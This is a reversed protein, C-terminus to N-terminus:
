ARKTFVFYRSLFSFRKIDDSMRLMEAAFAADRPKATDKSLAAWNADEFVTSFLASAFPVGMAHAEDKSILHVGRTALKAVLVDFDALYEINVKNITEVYVAIARGYPSRDPARDDYRKEIRWVINGDPTTAELANDGADLLANEAAKGDTCTGIFLGGARLNDAVNAVFGDLKEESEFMYHAAFQCSVVDFPQLALGEYASLNSDAPRHSKWLAQAIRKLSPNSVADAAERGIKRSADMPVFAYRLNANVKTSRLKALRAYAGASSKGVLNDEFIDVGVVVTYGNRIWSNMDAGRGCAVDLLRLPKPGLFRAARAYLMKDIIWVRHFRRMAETAAGTGATVEDFYVDDKAGAGSDSVRRPDAVDLVDIPFCISRWVSVATDYSNPFTKDHRVRLPTWGSSPDWSFEVISEDIVPEHPPARCAPVDRGPFVVAGIHMGQKINGYGPADFQQLLTKKDIAAGTLVAYPDAGAGTDRAGVMLVARTGAASVAVDGFSTKEYQVKFDVSNDKPPKWKFVRGWTSSRPAPPQGPRDQFVALREPTLVLGDVDYEALSSYESYVRAAAALPAFTKARVAPSRTDGLADALGGGARMQGIRTNAGGDGGLDALWLGRVDEGRNWYVDFVLYLNIPTGIKSMTVHEGDLLTNAARPSRIGTRSVADRDDILYGDGKSDVFLLSRRGDAKETVTYRLEGDGSVSFTDATEPQLNARELTVPRPMLRRHHGSLGTLSGLEAMVRASASATLLEGGGLQNRLVLLLEGVCSLMGTALGSARQRAGEPRDPDDAGVMEVEVEFTESTGDLAGVTTGSAYKVVTCDLRFMGDASVHSSRKKLRYHKQRGGSMSRIVDRPDALAIERKLGVSVNYETLMLRGRVPEKRIAHAHGADFMRGLTDTEDTCTCLEAIGDRGEVTVRYPGMSVDLTLSAPCYERKTRSLYRVLREFGRRDLSTEKRANVRAELELSADKAAASVMSELDDMAESPVEMREEELM